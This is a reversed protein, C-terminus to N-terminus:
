IRKYHGVVKRCQPCTHIADKVGDMCFPILCCGLWCGFLCLGGCILWPLLGTDMTVQTSISAHCHPCTM